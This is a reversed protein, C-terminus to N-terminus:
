EDHDKTGCEPEVLAHLQRASYGLLSELDCVFKYVYRKGATKHIINKDYYYRLGRSLKEYNMKPKNKRVGWRRAVEDPDTLKFEWDDGGTWSIFARCQRDTLLELLFQWLQIPGSGTFCPGGSPTYGNTILPGSTQGVQPKIDQQMLNGNNTGMSLIHNQHQQQQTQQHPQNNYHIQHNNNYQLYQQQMFHQLHVTNSSDAPGNAAAAAAAVAWHDVMVTNQSNGNPVTQPPAALYPSAGVAPDMHYPSSSSYSDGHFSDMTYRQQQQQQQHARHQYQDRQQQQYRHNQMLQPASQQSYLDTSAPSASPDITCPNESVMRIDEPTASGRNAVAAAPPTTAQQPATVNQSGCRYLNVRNQQNRVGRRGPPQQLRIRETYPPYGGEPKIASFDGYVGNAPVGQAGPNVFSATTTPRDVERTMQELHEWLIDGLYPPAESVFRERGMALLEEGLKCYLQTKKKLDDVLVDDDGMEEQKIDETSASTADENESDSTYVSSNSRLRRRPRQRIRQQSRQQQGLRAKQPPMAFFSGGLRRLLPTLPEDSVAFERYAWRFWQATHAATWQRPDKPVRLRNREREWQAFTAQLAETMTRNTGPTLPTLPVGPTLPVPPVLQQQNSNNNPHTGAVTSSSSSSLLHASVQDMDTSYDNDSSQSSLDSLSPVKRLVSPSSSNTMVSNSDQNIGPEQKIICNNSIQVGLSADISSLSRIRDQFELLSQPTTRQSIIEQHKFSQQQWSKMDLQDSHPYRHEPYFARDSADDYYSYQDDVASDM